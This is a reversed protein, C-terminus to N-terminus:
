PQLSCVMPRRIPWIRIELALRNPPELTVVKNHQSPYTQQQGKLSTRIRDIPTAGSAPEHVACIKDREIAEDARSLLTPPVEIGLQTATELNTVLQCAACGPPESPKEGKSIRGVDVYAQRWTDSLITGYSAFAVPSLALVQNGPAVPSLPTAGANRDL